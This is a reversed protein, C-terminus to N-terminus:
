LQNVQVTKAAFDTYRARRIEISVDSLAQVGPYEKSVNEIELINDTGM